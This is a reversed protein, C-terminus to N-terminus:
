CVAEMKLLEPNRPLRPLGFRLRRRSPIFTSSGYEHKRVCATMLALVHWKHACPVNVGRAWEWLVGPASGRRGGGSCPSCVCSLPLSCLTGAAVGSGAGCDQYIVRLFRVFKVLNLIFALVLCHLAYVM